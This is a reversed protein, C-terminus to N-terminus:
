LVLRRYFILPDGPLFFLPLFAIECFVIAFLLLYILHGHAAILQGLQADLSTFFHLLQLFDM